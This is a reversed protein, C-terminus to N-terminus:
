PQEPQQPPTPQVPQTPRSTASFLCGVPGQLVDLRAEFLVATPATAIGPHVACGSQRAKSVLDDRAATDYAGGPAVVSMIAKLRVDQTQADLAGQGRIASVAQQDFLGQINSDGALEEAAAGTAIFQSHNFETGSGSPIKTGHDLSAIVSPYVDTDGEDCAKNNEEGGTAIQCGLPIYSFEKRKIGFIFSEPLAQAFTAKLGVTTSTGVFALRGTRNTLEAAEDDTSDEGGAAIVAAAGTAYLQKIRPEIIKGNTQIRGLVPPLGGSRYSPASYGETRDFAVSATTPAADFNIGLSTNTVFIVRDSTCGALLAATALVALPKWASM